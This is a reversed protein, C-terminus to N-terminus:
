IFWIKLILLAKQKHQKSQSLSHAKTGQVNIALLDHLFILLIEFVPHSHTCHRGIRESFVWICRGLFHLFVRPFRQYECLKWDMLQVTFALFCANVQIWRFENDWFICSFEQLCLFVRHKGLTWRITFVPFVLTKKFEGANATLSFVLFSRFVCSYM